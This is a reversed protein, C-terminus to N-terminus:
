KGIAKSISKAVEKGCKAYCEKIRGSPDFDFDNDFMKVGFATLQGKALSKGSADLYSIEFLVHPDVKMVYSNFGPELMVTKVEITYKADKANTSASAGVASLGKNVLEDFAPEYIAGRTNVWKEAWKDGKGAQKGNYMDIKEKKYEAEPKKGVMMGDYVYVINFKKEGKLFSLKKDGETMKQANATLGAVALLCVFAVHKLNKM